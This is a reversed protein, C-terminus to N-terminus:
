IDNDLRRHGGKHNTPCGGRGKEFPSSQPSPNNRTVIGIQSSPSIPICIHVLELAFKLAPCYFDVFPDATEEPLFLGGRVEIREGFPLPLSILLILSHFASTSGSHKLDANYVGSDILQLRAETM